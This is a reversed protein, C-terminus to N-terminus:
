PGVRSRHETGASSLRRINCVARRCDVVLRLVAKLSRRRQSVIKNWGFFWVKLIRTEREEFFNIVRLNDGVAMTFERHLDFLRVSDYALEDLISPNSGLPGLVRAWLAGWTTFSSGFHPTGLFLVAQTNKAIGEFLSHRSAQVLAQDPDAPM